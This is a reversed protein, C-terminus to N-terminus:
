LEALHISLLKSIKFYTRTDQIRLITDNADFNYYRSRTFSINLHM